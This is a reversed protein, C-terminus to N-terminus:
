GRVHRRVTMERLLTRGRRRKKGKEERTIDVGLGLEV